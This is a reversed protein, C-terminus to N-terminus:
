LSGACFQLRRQQILEVANAADAESIGAAVLQALRELACAFASEYSPFEECRCGAIVQYGVIAWAM